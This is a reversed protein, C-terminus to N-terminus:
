FFVCGLLSVPLEPVDHTEGAAADAPNTAAAEEVREIAARVAENAASLGGRALKQRAVDVASEAAVVSGRAEQLTPWQVTLRHVAEELHDQMERRRRMEEEHKRFEAEAKRQALQRAYMERHSRLRALQERRGKELYVAREAGEIAKTAESAEKAIMAPAFGGHLVLVAAQIAKDAYAMTENIIAADNLELVRVLEVLDDFQLPDCLFRNSPM